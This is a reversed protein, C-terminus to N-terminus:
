KKYSNKKILLDNINEAFDYSKLNGFKDLGVQKSDILNCWQPLNNIDINLNLKEQIICKFDNLKIIKGRATKNSIFAAESENNKEGDVNLPFKIVFSKSLFTARNRGCEPIGYKNILEKLVLSAKQNKIDDDFGGYLYDKLDVSGNLFCLEGSYPFGKPINNRRM